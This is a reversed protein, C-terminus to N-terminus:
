IEAWNNGVKVEVKIPVKLRAAGEMKEIVMKQVVDIEAEPVEFVLEDHVQLVMKTKLNDERIYKDIEIMALKLLDASSGQVPTNIAVREAAQRINPSESNIDFIFRRRDLITTVYGCSRAKEIQSEMYRKVGPYRQFYSNIFEEAQGADIGM